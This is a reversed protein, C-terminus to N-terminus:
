NVSVEIAGAEMLPMRGTKIDWATAEEQKWVFGGATKADYFATHTWRGWNGSPRPFAVTSNNSIKAEGNEGEVPASMEVLMREYNEGSLEAGGSAPDGSLLAAYLQVGTVNEGRLCNLFKTKYIDSMNGVFTFSLTGETFVPAVNAKVELPDVPESYAWMNGGTLSDMIGIHTVNGVDVPATAFTLIESNKITVGNADVAPESFNIALRKYGEYEVETGAGDENPNTLFLALYMQKPATIDIGRCANLIATEFYNTAYM